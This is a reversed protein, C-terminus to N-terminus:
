TKGFRDLNDLKLPRDESLFTGSIEAEPLSPPKKKDCIGANQMKLHCSVSDIAGTAKM